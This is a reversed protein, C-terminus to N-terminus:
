RQKKEEDQLDKSEQILLTLLVGIAAFIFIGNWELPWLTFFLIFVSWFVVGSLKILIERYTFYSLAEKGQGRLMWMRDFFLWHFNGALKNFMDVFAIHWINIIQTRLFWLVSIFAGSFYFPKKNKKKDVFVGLFFVVMMSFFLALSYLFGVKDTSGLLLFVYLPWITMGADNTQRGFFTVALRRFSKEQIWTFFEKFNIIDTIKEKTLQLAALAGIGIIFLGVKFLYAYGQSLIIAGGIAPSIMRVFNTFFQLIGLDKGINQKSFKQSMLTYYSQWFFNAQLGCLVASLFVLNPYDVAFRLSLTYLAYLLCAVFLSYSLGIKKMINAVPIAMLAGTLSTILFFLGVITIGQGLETMNFPLNIQGRLSFLFIPVFFMMFKNSIEKSVRVVYLWRMDKTNDFSITPLHLHFSHTRSM